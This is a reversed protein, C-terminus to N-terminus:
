PRLKFIALMRDTLSPKADEALVATLTTPSGVDFYEAPLFAAGTEKMRLLWRRGHEDVSGLRRLDIILRRFGLTTQATEWSGNLETVDAYRLDGILQFRLTAVSDHIYYKFSSSPVTTARRNAQLEEARNEKLEANQTLVPM